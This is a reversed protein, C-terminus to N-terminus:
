LTRRRMKASEGAPSPGLMFVVEEGEKFPKKLGQQPFPPCLDGGGSASFHTHDRRVGESPKGGEQM